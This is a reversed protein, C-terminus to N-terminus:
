ADGLHRLSMGFAGHGLCFEDDGEGVRGGAALMGRGVWRCRYWPRDLGLLGEVSEEQGIAAWCWM